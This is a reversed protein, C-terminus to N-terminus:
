RNWREFDDILIEWRPNKSYIKRARIECIQSDDKWFQARTMCDLINKVYNDLDPKKIVPTQEKELELFKKKSISKQIPLFVNIHIILANELPVKPKFERILADLEVENRVQTKGKYARHFGNVTAHRARAQPSPICDLTFKLM